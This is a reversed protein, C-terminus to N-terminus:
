ISSHSGVARLPDASAWSCVCIDEPILDSDSASIAWKTEKSSSCCPLGMPLMLMVGVMVTVKPTCQTRIFADPFHLATTLVLARSGMLNPGLAGEQNRKM